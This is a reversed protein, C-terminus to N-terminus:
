NAFLAKKHNYRLAYIEANDLDGSSREGLVMLVVNHKPDYTIARNQGVIDRMKKRPPPAIGVRYWANESVRFIYIGAEELKGPPSGCTFFVDEGPIYVGERRCVPPEGGKPVKVVPDIKGWRGSSLNFTWLENREVGGGHLILQDMKSDYVLSTLEYLNQPWPGSTSLKKWSRGEVDLLFVANEIVKEGKFSVTDQRDLTNVVRWYYDVAMVGRPTTVMLDLGPNCPCLIEWKETNPDYIWTVWKAYGSFNFNERSGFEPNRPYYIRLFDPEYGATLYIYKMNIIKQSVPDYAYAKRGHRMWPAGNFTLGAPYVGGSKDWNREPYEVILPSSIWTNEEVDYFDYDNGGYGCHGGGWYVIRGNETDFSCSGWTRLPAVRGPNSLLVWENEPMNKLRELQTKRRESDPETGATAEELSRKLMKEQPVPNVTEDVLGHKEIRFVYTTRVPYIENCSMRDEEPKTSTTLIILNEDPKIDATIYWGVPVEGKLKFWKELSADFAWMDTLDEQNYGGGIIVWGTGPDYVTFHGARPPPGAISELVRWKRTRTDYIWTDAIYHTLADGGFLVLVKNEADCVARSAIRPPPEIECNLRRWDGSICEYIWTGTYGVPKGNPSLEAVHGGGTLVLEDNFPDYCLSGGLVPPPNEGLAIDSWKRKTLDYAFARGGTFYVMRSRKSDYTVQDFVINLDPRLVGERMKLQLRHSGITIGQYYSCLHMPPLEKNWEEERDFPFQNQWRGIAPDFTVIDYEPNDEYPIEPNGYYESIFGMFGWLLFYGENEVYRFSSHRRAGKEDRSILTWTNSPINSTKEAKSCSSLVILILAFIELTKNRM